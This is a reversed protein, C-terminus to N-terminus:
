RKEKRSFFSIVGVMVLLVLIMVIFYIWSLASAYGFGTKMEFMNTKIQGIIPNLTSISYMVLTYVVNVIIMPVLSPLTIKWFIEWMSAGDIKAAEYISTDIKQLAAIFILIQVGSFWLLIIMNDIVYTFLKTFGLNPNNLALKYIAYESVKPISTVGLTQLKELVPGSSIIVPLFFVTRFFGKGKIDQNLLLAIMLALIVILPVVIFIERLYLTLNNIFSIDSTFIAIFNQFKVFTTQIGITTIKVSFFSLYLSYLIPFATFIIFGILWPLVFLYGVRNLHNSKSIKKM